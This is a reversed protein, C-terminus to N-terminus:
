LVKYGPHLIRYAERVAVQDADASFAVECREHRIAPLYDAGGSQSEIFLEGREDRLAGAIRDPFSSVSLPGEKMEGLFLCVTEGASSVVPRREERILRWKKGEEDTWLSKERLDGCSRPVVKARVLCPYGHNAGIDGGGVILPTAEDTSVALFRDGHWIDREERRVLAASFFDVPRNVDAPKKDPPLIGHFIQLLDEEESFPTRVALRDLYMSTKM